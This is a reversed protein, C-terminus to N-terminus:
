SPRVDQGMQLFIVDPLRNMIAQPDVFQGTSIKHGQYYINVPAEGPCADILQGVYGWESESLARVLSIAMEEYSLRVGLYETEWDGVSSGALESVGQLSLQFQKRLLSVKGQDRNQRQERARSSLAEAQAAHLIRDSALSDLAGSRVLANLVGINLVTLSATRYFHDFSKYPRKKVLSDYASQGVGKIATIGFRIGSGTSTFSGASENVDPPLIQVGLRRTEALYVPLREPDDAVSSLLAAMYQSPYHCKLYATWYSVLGYGVTHSKNFAYDAFPLLVAWLDDSASRSYGNAAMGDIFEPRLRELVGHDKKGMAKRALDAKGLSWGCLRQLVAMVQEQYVIVGYTEELLETLVDDIEFNISARRNNLRKRKAYEIHSRAGMPGPRYLALVASIDNFSSVQVDKLLRKMGDSDLQFVGDSHGGALMSLTDPDDLPLGLLWQYDKSVSKLCDQIVSLNRVGLFDMKVLGLSEVPGADFATLLTGQGARQWTPIVSSLPEPSIIVGAAHVGVSRTLGELGKALRVVAKQEPLEVPPMKSLDPSVGFLPQPLMDTLLTGQAFSGGSVRNADKLAAKAAITGLTMIQAVNDFGYLTQLHEIVKDKDSFDVDIDPLSVREPNLFREFLLGHVIPDIDTIGLLYAVYSGGVSGRGPGVFVGNNRAWSIAEALVLFYDEFEGNSIVELELNLRNVKTDDIPETWRESELCVARLNTRGPVKPMRLKKAFVAGYDGIKDAIKLTQDIAGTPLDTELMEKRSKLYFGSGTFRFRNTDKLKAQTQICLLADHVEADGKTSYHSDNTAVVEISLDDALGLLQRNLDAEDFGDGDEKLKIGHDMVEIYFDQGFIEKLTEAHEMAMEFNGTRLASSIYSGACGSLIIWNESYEALLPIDFRPKRYFGETYSRQHAQYLDKLGDANKALITLHTAAGQSGVNGGSRVKEPFFWPEKLGRGGPAFYAEIGIIPKVGQAVAQQYFEYAGYLNGHDTLALAPQGLAKARGVMESYKQGGDLISCEGHNHLNVFNDIKGM